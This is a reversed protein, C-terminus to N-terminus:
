SVCTVCYHNTYANCILIIANRIIVSCISLVVISDRGQTVTVTLSWIQTGHPVGKTSCIIHLKRVVTWNPFYRHLKKVNRYKHACNTRSLHTHGSLRLSATSYQLPLASFGFTFSSTSSPITAHVCLRHETRKSTIVTLFFVTQSFSSCPPSAPWVGAQSQAPLDGGISLYFVWSSAVILRLIKNSQRVAWCTEPM